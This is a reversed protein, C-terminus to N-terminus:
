IVRTTMGSLTLSDEYDRIEPTAMDYSGVAYSWLEAGTLVMTAGVAVPTSVPAAAILRQMRRRNRRSWEQVAIQTQSYPIQKGDNTGSLNSLVIDSMGVAAVRAKDQYIARHVRKFKRHDYGARGDVIIGGIEFYSKM